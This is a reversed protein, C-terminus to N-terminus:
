NKIGARKELEKVPMDIQRGMQKGDRYTVVKLMSADKPVGMPGAYKPYFTDPHANDWSYHIDLGEVETSLEVQLKGGTDKKATFIPDFMARAYKVQRLDLRDFHAEVKQAFRNWNRASKPSWV